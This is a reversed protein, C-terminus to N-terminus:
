QFEEYGWVAFKDYNIPHFMTEMLEEKFINCRKKMAEYNYAFLVTPNTTLNRWHIRDQNKELLHLAAPNYSLTDWDVRGDVNKEILHIAACNTSLAQWNALHEHKEIFRIAKPNRCIMWWTNQDLIQDQRTIQDKTKIWYKELMPYRADNPNCCVLNWWNIKDENQRLVTLASPNLSLLNWNIKEPNDLLLPLANENESLASWDIKDIHKELLSIAVVNSSLCHWNIREIHQELLSIAAVNGSLRTWDIRDLNKSLIHIAAHNTSLHEWDVKDLNQEIIHIAAPNRSLYTWDIQSSDLHKELIAIAAPHHSQCLTKIDLKEEPIWDRLTYMTAETM